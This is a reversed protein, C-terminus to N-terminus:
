NLFHGRMEPRLFDYDRMLLCSMITVDTLQDKRSSIAGLLGPPEAACMAVVISQGSEIKQTAEEISILKRRYAEKPDM